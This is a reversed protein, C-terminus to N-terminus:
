RMPLIILCLTVSRYDACLNFPHLLLLDALGLLIKIHLQAFHWWISYFFCASTGQTHGHLMKLLEEVM